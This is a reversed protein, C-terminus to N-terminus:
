LNKKYFYKNVLSVVIVHIYILRCKKKYIRDQWSQDFM